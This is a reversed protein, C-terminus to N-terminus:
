ILFESSIPKRVFGKRKNPPTMHMSSDGSPVDGEQLEFYKAQSGPYLPEENNSNKKRRSDSKSKSKTKSAQEGSHESDKGSTSDSGDATELKVSISKKTKNEWDYPDDFQIKKKKLADMLKEFIM